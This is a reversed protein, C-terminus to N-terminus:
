GASEPVFRYADGSKEVRGMGGGPLHFGILRMQEHALRDLLQARSQAALDGDQDSGTVAMPAAFAIHHNGIADGAVLLAESGARLEYALHGPTHGFSSMAAIGPLIEQGDEVFSFQDAIVELRRKAGVAFSQREAGISGLTNPDMWYDFEARGIHHQANYFLPEDFDDLVGWLHDPHAHTFVIDTVDEPSLGIADLSDGLAGASPQFGAGAGADFLVIREGHRLLTINCPPVLFESPLDFDETITARMPAPVPGFIFDSPLQLHGDSLTQIQMQGLQTSAWVARPLSASLAAGASLQLAARRTFTM